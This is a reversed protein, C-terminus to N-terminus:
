RRPRFTISYFLGAALLLAGWYIGLHLSALVVPRPAPHGLQWLGAAAILVGYISLLLGIFFWISIPRSQPM